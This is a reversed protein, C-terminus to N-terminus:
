HNLKFDLYVPLHDSLKRAQLLNECKEVFDIVGGDLNFIEKSYFVNDIAYNLYSNGECIRKLTTKQNKIAPSNGASKLLDFVKDSENVNFDGALILPTKL